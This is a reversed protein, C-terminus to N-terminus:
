RQFSCTLAERWPQCPTLRRYVCRNELIKTKGIGLFLRNSILVQIKCMWALDSGFIWAKSSSTKLHHLKSVIERDLGPGVHCPKDGELLNVIWRSSLLVKLYRFFMDASQASVSLPNAKSWRPTRDPNKNKRYTLYFDQRFWGAHPLVLGRETEARLALM